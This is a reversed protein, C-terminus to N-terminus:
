WGLLETATCGLAECLSRLTTLSPQREGAEYKCILTQDVGARLALERQALGRETRVRRLHTSTM